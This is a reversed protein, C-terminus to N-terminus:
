KRREEIKKHFAKLEDWKAQMDRARYIKKWQQSLSSWTEIRKHGLDTEVLRYYCDGITSTDLVTIEEM